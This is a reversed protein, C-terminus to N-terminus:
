PGETAADIEEEETMAVTKSLDPAIEVHFSNRETAWETGVPVYLTTREGARFDIQMRRRYVRIPAATRPAMVRVTVTVAPLELSSRNVVEAAIRPPDHEFDPRISVVELAPQTFHITYYVYAEPGPAVTIGHLVGIVRATLEGAVETYVRVVKAVKGEANLAIRLQLLGTDSRAELLYDLYEALIKPEVARIARRVEEAREGKLEKGFVRIKGPEPEPPAPARLTMPGPKEKEKSEEAPCGSLVAAVVLSLLTAVRPKM